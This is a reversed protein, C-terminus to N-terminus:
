QRSWWNRWDDISRVRVGPACHALAQMTWARTQSDRNQEYLRIFSPVMELRQAQSYRGCQVLCCFARERAAPGYKQEDAVIQFFYPLLEDSGLEGLAWIANDCAPDRPHREVYTQGLRVVSSEPVGQQLALLGLYSFGTQVSEPRSSRIYRRNLEEVGQATAPIGAQGLLVQAAAARRDYDDEDMVQWLDDTSLGKMSSALKRVRAYDIETNNEPSQDDRDSSSTQEGRALAAVNRSAVAIQEKGMDVARHVWEPHNAFVYFAVATLACGLLFRFM